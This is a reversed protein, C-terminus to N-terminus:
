LQSTTKKRAAAGTDVPKPAELTLNYKALTTSVTAAKAFLANADSV